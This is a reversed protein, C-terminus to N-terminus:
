AKRRQAPAAPQQPAHGEQQQDREGRRDRQEVPRQELTQVIGARVPCLGVEHHHPEGAQDQEEAQVRRHLLVLELPRAARQGALLALLLVDARAQGLQRLQELDRGREIELELELDNELDNHAAHDRRQPRLLGRDHDDIRFGAHELGAGRVTEFGLERPVRALAQALSDGAPHRLALFGHQQVGLVGGLREDAMVLRVAVDGRRERQRELDAIAADAHQVHVADIMRIRELFVVAVDQLEEGLVDSRHDIAGLDHVPQALAIALEFGADFAQVPDVPQLVHEEGGRAM